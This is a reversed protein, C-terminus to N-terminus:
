PHFERDVMLYSCTLICENFISCHRFVVLLTFAPGEMVQDDRIVNYPKLRKQGCERRSEGIGKTEEDFNQDSGESYICSYNAQLFRAMDSLYIFKIGWWIICEYPALSTLTFLLCFIFLLPVFPMMGLTCKHKNSLCAFLISLLIIGKGLGCYQM